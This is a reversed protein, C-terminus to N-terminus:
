TSALMGFRSTSASPMAHRKSARSFIDKLVPLARVSHEQETPVGHGVCIARKATPIHCCLQEPALTPDSATVDNVSPDLDTVCPVGPAPLARVHVVVHLSSKSMCANPTNCHRTTPNRASLKLKAECPGDLCQARLPVRTSRRWAARRSPVTRSVTM